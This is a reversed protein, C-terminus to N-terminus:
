SHPPGGFLSSTTPSAGLYRARPRLMYGATRQEIAHAVWGSVRAIAYLGTGSRRPLRLAISLAAIGAEARPYLHMTSRAKELFSLVQKLRPSKNPLASALEILYDGRPDGRPYLPHNFGPPTIGKRQLDLANGLLVDAKTSASLFDEARDCLRAMELGSHTAMAATVCALMLAGSSAAVRASFTSSTLEHDAMLVLIAEIAERARPADAVGLAHLTGNAISDGKLMPVMARTPGITGLCAVMACILQRATDIADPFKGAEILKGRTIGMHLTLLSFKWLLHEDAAEESDFLNRVHAPIAPSDWHTREGLWLGSWLFEAVSEFSAGSRALAIASRGRYCHGESRIETITTPIIPEGWRMATSAVVGHGTRSSARNKMKEMDVRAYLSRKGGGPQQVSRIWGRSVYAYLTQPKVNLIKLAAERTIYEDQATSVSLKANSRKPTRPM